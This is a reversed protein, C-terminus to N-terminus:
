VFPKLCIFSKGLSRSRGPGASVADDVAACYGQAVYASAWSSPLQGFIGCLIDPCVKEPLPLFRWVTRTKKTKCCGNENALNRKIKRFRYISFSFYSCWVKFYLLLSSYIPRLQFILPIPSKYVSCCFGLLGALRWPSWFIALGAPWCCRAGTLLPPLRLIISKPM